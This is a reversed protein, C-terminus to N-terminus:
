NEAYSYRERALRRAYAQQLAEQEKADILLRAERPDIDGLEASKMLSAAYAFYGGMAEDSGYIERYQQRLLRYAQAAPVRGAERDQEMRDRAHQWTEDRRDGASACASLVAALLCASIRTRM